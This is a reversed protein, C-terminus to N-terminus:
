VGKDRAEMNKVEFRDLETQECAFAKVTRVNSIAEESIQGANAKLEQLEKSLTTIIRGLIVAVILFPLIGGITLLTLQWSIFFTIILTAIITIMARIFMSINMSLGNQVVQTDSAMRSLLDGTKNEDFFAVDKRLLSHFLDYKLDHSIGATSIAFIFGRIGAAVGSVAVIIAALACTSDVVKWDKKTMADVTVGIFYPVSFNALQSFCM